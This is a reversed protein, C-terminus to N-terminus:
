TQHSWGSSHLSLFFGGWPSSAKAKAAILEQLHPQRNCICYRRYCCKGSLALGSAWEVLDDSAALYAVKSSCTTMLSHLCRYRREHWSCRGHICCFRHQKCQLWRWNRHWCFTCPLTSLDLRLTNIIASVERQHTCWLRQQRQNPRHTPTSDAFARVVNAGTGTTFTGLGIIDM